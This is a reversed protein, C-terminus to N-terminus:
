TRLVPDEQKWASLSCPLEAVTRKSQQLREQLQQVFAVTVRSNELLSQPDQPNEVDGGNKNKIFFGNLFKEKKHCNTERTILRNLWIINLLGLLMLGGIGILGKLGFNFWHSPNLKDLWSQM